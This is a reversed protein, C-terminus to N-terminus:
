SLNAVGSWYMDFATEFEDEFVLLPKPLSLLYSAVGRTFALDFYAIMDTPYPKFVGANIKQVIFQRPGDLTSEVRGYQTKIYPSSEFVTIYYFKIPHTIFWKVIEGFIRKTSERPLEENFETVCEKEIEFMLQKYIEIILQDKGSIHHYLTGKAIGLRGTLENISASFGKEVFLEMAGKYIDEKRGM